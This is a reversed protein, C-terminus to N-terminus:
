VAGWANARPALVYVPVVNLATVWAIVASEERWVLAGLVLLFGVIQVPSWPWSEDPAASLTGLFLLPYALRWALLPRRVAVVLPLTAWIALIAAASEHLPRNELLYSGNALTLGILAFLGLPVGYLRIRPWRRSPAPPPQRDPGLLVRRLSGSFEM